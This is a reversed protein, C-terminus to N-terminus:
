ANELCNLLIQEIEQRNNELAPRLFPRAAVWPAKLRKKIAPVFRGVQQSHGLELYPAYEVNTGIYVSVKGPDDAPASGEYKGSRVVGENDPRDAVYGGIAPAEGGIAFTISNRLLGTDYPCLEKAHGEVSGGIMRAAKMMAEESAKHVIYLNSTVEVSVSM